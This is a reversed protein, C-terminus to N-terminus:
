KSFWELMEQYSDFIIAGEFGSDIRKTFKILKKISKKNCSDGISKKLNSLYYFKDGYEVIISKSRKGGNWQVGVFSKNTITDFNNEETESFNIAKM